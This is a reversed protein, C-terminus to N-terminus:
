QMFGMELANRLVRTLRDAGYTFKRMVLNEYSCPFM